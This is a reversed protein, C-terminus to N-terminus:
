QGRPGALPVRVGCGPRTGAAEVRQRRGRGCLPAESLWVRDGLAGRPRPSGPVRARDRGEGCHECSAVWGSWKRRAVHFRSGRPAPASSPRRSPDRTGRGRGGGPGSNNGRGRGGRVARRGWGSPDRSLLLRRGCLLMLVVPGDGGGWRGAGAASVRGRLLRRRPLGGPARAGDPRDGRGSGLAARPEASRAADDPSPREASYCPRPGDGRM